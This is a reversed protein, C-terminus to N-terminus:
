KSFKKLVQSVHLEEYLYPSWAVGGQPEWGKEVEVQVIKELADIMLGMGAARDEHCNDNSVSMIQYKWM